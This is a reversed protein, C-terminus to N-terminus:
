GRYRYGPDWAIMLRARAAGTHAYARARALRVTYQHSDRRNIRSLTTYNRNSFDSSITGRRYQGGGMKRSGCSTATAGPSCEKSLFFFFLQTLPLCFNSQPRLCLCPSPKLSKLQTHGFTLGIRCGRVTGQDCSLWGEAESQAAPAEHNPLPPFSCQQVFLGSCTSYCLVHHKKSTPKYHVSASLRAEAGSTSMILRDYLEHLSGASKMRHRSTTGMHDDNWGGECPHLWLAHIYRANIRGGLRWGM